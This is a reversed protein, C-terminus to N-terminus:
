YVDRNYDGPQTEEQWDAADVVTTLRCDGIEDHCDGCIGDCHYNAALTVNCRDCRREVNSANDPDCLEDLVVDRVTALEYHTKHDRKDLTVHEIAITRSTETNM